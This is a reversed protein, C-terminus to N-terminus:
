SMWRAKPMMRSTVLPMKRVYHCAPRLLATQTVSSGGSYPLRCRGISVYLLLEDRPGNHEPFCLKEPSGDIGIGDFVPGGSDRERRLPIIALKLSLLGCRQDKGDDGSAENFGDSILRKLRGGPVPLLAFLLPPRNGIEPVSYTLRARLQPL